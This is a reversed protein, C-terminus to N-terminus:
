KLTKQLWETMLAPWTHATKSNAALGLGHNGDNYIHLECPIGERALAEAFSISNQAPVTTDQWTHWIFLPPTNEKVSNEASYKKQLQKNGATFNDRTGAHAFDKELSTAPYSLATADPRASVADIEDPTYNPDDVEFDFHTATMSALHGGASAGITVIKNPDIGFEEANYRVFKVGRLGDSLIARYDYGRAGKETVRYSVIFASIGQSNLYKAIQVGDKDMSLSSYGGGPILVACIGTPNESAIYPTITPTVTTNKGIGNYPIVNGWLNIPKHFRYKEAPTQETGEASIGLSSLSMIMVATLIISIVRLCFTRIKM